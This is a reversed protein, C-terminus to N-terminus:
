SSPKLIEKEDFYSESYCNEPFAKSMIKDNFFKCFNRLIDKDKTEWTHYNWDISDHDKKPACVKGTELEYVAKFFMGKFFQSHQSTLTYSAAQFQPKESVNHPTNKYVCLAIATRMNQSDDKYFFTPENVLKLFPAIVGSFPDKRNDKQNNKISDQFPKLSNNLKEEEIDDLFYYGDGKLFARMKAALSDEPQTGLSPKEMGLAESFLTLLFAALNKRLVQSVKIISHKASKM